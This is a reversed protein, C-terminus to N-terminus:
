GAPVGMFRLMRQWADQCAQAQDPLSADFFGHPADDYVVSEQLVGAEGLAQAFAQAAVQDDAGAYLALVPARLRGGRADGVAGAPSGSLAIVGAVDDRAAHRLAASAADCVGLVFVRAAGARHLADIETEDGTRAHVGADAFADALAQRGPGGDDCLVVVGPAGPAPPQGRRPPAPVAAAPDCCPRGHAPRRAVVLATGLTRWPVDVDDLGAARADALLEDVRRLPFDHRHPRLGRTRAGTLRDRVRRYRPHWDGPVGVHDLDFFLGGPVLLDRVARLVCAISEPSFHHLVRSTVVLEAPELELAGLREVDGLVYRVRDDLSALRERAADRMPPSSDVWTGRANPFANLAHELYAGPGSGLDIVHGVELGTEHALATSIRRPLELLDAVVDEAAWQSVYSGSHWSALPETSM